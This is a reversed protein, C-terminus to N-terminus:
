EDLKSLAAKLADVQGNWYEKDSAKGAKGAFYRARAQQERLWDRMMAVREKDDM